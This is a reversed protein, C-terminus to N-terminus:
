SRQNVMPRVYPGNNVIPFFSGRIHSSPTRYWQSIGRIVKTGTWFSQTFVNLELCFPWWKGSSLQFHMKKLSFIDIEILIESFNTGLPWILLIEAKTWIIGQRRRPSLGNDSGIIIIESVCIHPVRGWHTLAYKDIRICEKYSNQNYPTYICVCPTDNLIPSAADWWLRYSQKQSHTTGTNFAM